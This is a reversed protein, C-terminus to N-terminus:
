SWTLESLTPLVSVKSLNVLGLSLLGTLPVDLLLHVGLTRLGLSRPLPLQLARLGLPGLQQASVVLLSTAHINAHTKKCAFSADIEKRLRPM